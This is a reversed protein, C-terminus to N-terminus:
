RYMIIYPKYICLIHLSYPYYMYSSDICLLTKPNQDLHYLLSMDRVSASSNSIFSTCYCLTSLINRFYGCVEFMDFDVHWKLVNECNKLSQVYDPNQAFRCSCCKCVTCAFTSVRLGFHPQHTEQWSQREHQNLHDCAHWSQTPDIDWRNAPCQCQCACFQIKTNTQLFSVFVYINTYRNM